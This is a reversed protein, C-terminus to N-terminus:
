RSPKAKVKNGFLASRLIPYIETNDLTGQIQESRYGIGRVLIGGTSDALGTWTIAYPLEKGTKDPRALFPLSGTGDRGDPIAANEHSSPLKQDAPMKRANLGLVELGGADSDSTMLMLTKPNKAIFDRIVGITEDARRGAELFGQANNRNAFNDTGEEEAVLFFGQPNRNLIELAAATMEAITPASAAYLPLKEAKLKEETDDNFTHSWAFVGLVKQASKPLAKLEDRNYVIVYGKSQAWEILNVGDTREGVGHRGRVGKPLLYREGGSFSVQPESEIVQKAIEENFENRGPVRAVFAATGPESIYGSQVLGVAKGKAKAEHFISGDYGSASQIRETGDMGFSDAVVKVGYAHITAGGNSTGSLADKLHGLYVAMRPLRDWNTRGDPGVTSMRVATWHSASMGDPHFFIASKAEALSPAVGLLLGCIAIRALAVTRFWGTAGSKRTSM